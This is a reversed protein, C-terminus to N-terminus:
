AAKLLLGKLRDLFTPRHIGLAEWGKRTLRYGELAGAAGDEAKRVLGAALAREVAGRQFVADVEFEPVLLEGDHDKLLNLLRFLNIDMDPM